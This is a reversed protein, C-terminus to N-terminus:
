KVLMRKRIVHTTLCLQLFLPIRKPANHCFGAQAICLVDPKRCLKFLKALESKQPSGPDEAKEEEEPVVPDAQVSLIAAARWERCRDAM